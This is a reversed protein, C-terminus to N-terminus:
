GAAAIRDDKRGGTRRGRNGSDGLDCRDQAADAGEGGRNLGAGVLAKDEFEAGARRDEIIDVAGLERAVALHADNGGIMRQARFIVRQDYRRGLLSPEVVELCSHARGDITERGIIVGIEGAVIWALCSGFRSSSGIGRTDQHRSQPQEAEAARSAVRPDGGIDGLQRDGRYGIGFRDATEVRDALGIHEVDFVPREFLCLEALSDLLREGALDRDHGPTGARDAKRDGPCHGAGAGFQRQEIDITIGGRSRRLLEAAGGEAEGAIHGIRARHACSEVPTTASNPPTSM